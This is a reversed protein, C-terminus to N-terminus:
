PGARRQLEPRPVSVLTPEEARFRERQARAEGRTMARLRGAEVHLVCGARLLLERVKLADVQAAARALALVGAHDPNVGYKFRIRRAMYHPARGRPCTPDPQPWNM